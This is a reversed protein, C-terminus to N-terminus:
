HVALHAAARRYFDKSEPTLRDGYSRLHQTSGKNGDLPSFVDKLLVNFAKFTEDEPALYIWENENISEPLQLGVATDHVIHSQPLLGLIDFFQHAYQHKLEARSLQVKGQLPRFLDRAGLTVGIHPLATQYNWRNQRLEEDTATNIAESQEELYLMHILSSIRDQLRRDLIELEDAEDADVYSGITAVTVRYGGARMSRTLDILTRSLHTVDMDYIKYNGAEQLLEFERIAAWEAPFNRPGWQKGSASYRELEDRLAQPFWVDISASKGIRQLFSFGATIKRGAPAPSAFLQKNILHPTPSATLIAM